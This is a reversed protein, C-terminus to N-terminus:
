IINKTFETITDAIFYANKEDSSCKFHRTDDWYYIGADKGSCLILIFGHEYSDGIIITDSPLENSYDIMWTEINANDYGTNIGFLVDVHIDEQLDKVYIGSEDDLTVDGGNYKLLFEIYDQPLKINYKQELLLIAKPTTDQFKKIVM